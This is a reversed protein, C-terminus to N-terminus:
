YWSQYKKGDIKRDKWAWAWFLTNWYLLPAAVGVFGPIAAFPSATKASVVLLCIGVAFAVISVVVGNPKSAQLAPTYVRRSSISANM